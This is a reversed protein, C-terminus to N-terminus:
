PTVPPTNGAGKMSQQIQAIASGLSALQQALDNGSLLKQTAIATEADLTQIGEIAKALATEALIDLRKGHSVSNGMAQATYYAAAEGVTKINTVGVVEVTTDITESQPEPM